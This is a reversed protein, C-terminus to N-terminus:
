WNGQLAGERLLGLDRVAQGPPNTLPAFIPCSVPSNFIQLKWGTKTQKCLWVLSWIYHQADLHVAHHSLPCFGIFGHCYLFFFITVRSWGLNGEFCLIFVMKWRQSLVLMMWARNKLTMKLFLFFFFLWGGNIGNENEFKEEKKNAREWENRDRREKMKRKRAGERWRAGGCGKEWKRRKKQLRGPYIQRRNTNSQCSLARGERGASDAHNFLRCGFGDAQWMWRDDALTRWWRGMVWVPGRRWSALFAASCRWPPSRFPGTGGSPRGVILGQSRGVTHPSWPVRPSCSM